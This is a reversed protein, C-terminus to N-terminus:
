KNNKFEDFYAEFDDEFVLFVTKYYEWELHILDFDMEYERGREEKIFELARMVDVPKKFRFDIDFGDAFSEQIMKWSCEEVDIVNQKIVNKIDEYAPDQIAGYYDDTEDM